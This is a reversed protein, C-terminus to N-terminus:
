RVHRVKERLRHLAQGAMLVQGCKIMKATELEAAEKRLQAATQRLMESESM